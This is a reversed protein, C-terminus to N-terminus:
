TPQCKSVAMPETYANFISGDRMAYGDAKKKKKKATLCAVWFMVDAPGNFM